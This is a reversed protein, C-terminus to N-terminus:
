GIECCDLSPGPNFLKKTLQTYMALECRLHLARGTGEISRWCNTRGTIRGGGDEVSGGSSARRKPQYRPREFRLDHCFLPHVRNACFISLRAQREWVLFCHFICWSRLRAERKAVTTQTEQQTVRKGMRHRTASSLLRSILGDGCMGAALQGLKCGVTAKQNLEGHHRFQLQNHARRVEKSRRSMLPRHKEAQESLTPRCYQM